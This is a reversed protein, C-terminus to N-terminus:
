NELLRQRKLESEDCLWYYEAKPKMGSKVQLQRMVLMGAYDSGEKIVKVLLKAQKHTM